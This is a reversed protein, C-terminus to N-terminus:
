LPPPPYNKAIEAAMNEWSWPNEKPNLDLSNGPWDLSAIGKRTKFEAVNYRYRYDHSVRLAPQVYKM